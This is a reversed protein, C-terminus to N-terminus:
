IVLEKDINSLIIQCSSFDEGKKKLASGKGYLAESCLSDIGLAMDFFDIAEDFDNIKISIWGANLFGNIDRPFAQVFKKAFFISEYFDERVLFCQSLLFYQKSNKKDLFELALDPDIDLVKKAIIEQAQSNKEKFHSFEEIRNIIEEGSLTKLLLVRGTISNSDIELGKEILKRAESMRNFDIMVEANRFYPRGTGPAVSIANSYQRFGEHVIGAVQLIRGKEIWDLDRMRNRSLIDQARVAEDFCQMAQLTNGIEMNIDGLAIWCPVHQGDVSLGLNIIQRAKDYLKLSQFCRGLAEHYDPDESDLEISTEIFELGEEPRGLRTLARGKAMWAYHFTSDLEIAKEHYYISEEYRHLHDLANGINNVAIVYEEDLKLSEEYLEISREYLGQNYHVNALNNWAIKDNPDLDVARQYYDKSDNLRGSLQLTYGYNYWAVAYTPDSKMSEDYCRLAENWRNINFNAFGRNNWAPANRPELELSIAYAGIAEEYRSLRQLSDGLRMHYRAVEPALKCAKEYFHRAENPLNRSMELMGLRNFIQPDEPALSSAQLFKSKALSSNGNEYHMEGEEILDIVDM